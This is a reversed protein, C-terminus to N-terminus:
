HLNTKIAQCLETPQDTGLRFQKGSKLKIEVAEFGSVNYLWGNPTLRIGWGCLWSNKVAQCDVVQSLDINKKIFGPGFWFKLFGNEVEVTLSSFLWGSVALIFVVLLVMWTDEKQQGIALVLPILALVMVTIMLYAIQTRKYNM